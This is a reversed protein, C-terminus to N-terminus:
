APQEPARTHRTNSQDSDRLTPERGRERNRRQPDADAGRLEAVPLRFVRGLVRTDLGYLNSQLEGLIATAIPQSLLHDFGHKARDFLRTTGTPACMPGADDLNGLSDIRSTDHRVSFVHRLCM